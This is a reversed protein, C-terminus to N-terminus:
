VGLTYGHKTGDALLGQVNVVREDIWVNSVAKGRNEAPNKTKDAKM